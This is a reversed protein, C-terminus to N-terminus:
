LTVMLVTVLMAGVIIRANKINWATISEKLVNMSITVISGLVKSVRLVHVNSVALPISVNVLAVQVTTATPRVSMRTTVIPVMELTDMSANAHLIVMETSAIQLNAVHTLVM